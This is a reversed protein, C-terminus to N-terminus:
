PERVEGSDSGRRGFRSRPGDEQGGAVEGSRRGEIRPVLRDEEGDQRCRFGHHANYDSENALSLREAACSPVPGSRGAPRAAAAAQGTYGTAPKGDRRFRFVWSRAGNPQVRLMFGQLAADHIAYERERPRAPGPRSRSRMPLRAREAM